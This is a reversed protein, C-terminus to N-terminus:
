PRGGEAQRPAFLERWAVRQGYRLMGLRLARGALWLAALASLGMVLLNLAIQWAPISTLAARMTFTIPATLPFLSLGVAFPGNPHEMIAAIFMYPLVAPITMLGAVQQGERAETVTVGVAAMLGAVMVFGALMELAALGVFAPDFQINRVWSLSGRGALLIAAALGFWVMIQTAGVGVIAVIKGAMMQVPSVSTVVIEMTRNEKEEVVAQMLYGSIGTLAMLFVFSAVFPVLLNVFSDQGARQRGDGSVVEVTSGELIRRVVAEPQGALLNVRLFDAFQGQVAQEPAKVYVLSAKRTTRYDAPLVYYAQIQGAELAQKAAEEDAFPVLRVPRAPPEPTPGPLPHALLGSHDVYGLPGSRSEAAVLLFGLLVMVGILAPVSLLAFAFRKHLVIRTYEYRIIRWLKM